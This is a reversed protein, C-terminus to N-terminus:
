QCHTWHGGEPMESVIDEMKRRLSGWIPRMDTYREQINVTVISTGTRSSSRVYDLEPIERVAKEIKDTILTEVREPSAGPFQTVVKAVRIVFGPDYARPLNQYAQLGSLVLVLLLVLTTRNNEIAVRTLSMM